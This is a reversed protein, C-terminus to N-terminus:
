CSQRRVQDQLELPGDAYAIDHFNLRAQGAGHGADADAGASHLGELAGLDNNGICGEDGAIHGVPRQGLGLTPHIQRDAHRVAGVGLQHLFQQLPGRYLM